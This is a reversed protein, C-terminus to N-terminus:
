ALRHGPHGYGLTKTTPSVPNSGAIGRVGALSAAERGSNRRRQPMDEDKMCRWCVFGDIRPTALLWFPEVGTLTFIGRLSVSPLHGTLPLRKDSTNTNEDESDDQSADGDGRVVGALRLMLSQHHHVSFGTLELM